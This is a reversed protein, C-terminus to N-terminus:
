PFAGNPSLAIRHGDDLSVGFWCLIGARRTGLYTGDGGDNLLPLDHGCVLIAGPRARWMDGIYAITASSAAGDQTSVGASALLEARNKVADAALIVRGAGDDLVFALHHLTHGPAAIADIGPLAETGPTLRRLQSSHALERVYLEACLSTEMPEALAHDLEAGSIAVSAAPFLTWNMMHDYHAHTLLIDTVDERAICREALRALVTRRASFSGTDVLIVRGRGRLLVVASWGLGGNELSRGPFGQVLLDIQYGCIDALVTM